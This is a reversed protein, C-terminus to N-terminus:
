TADRPSHYNPLRDRRRAEFVISTEIRTVGPRSTFQDLAVDKLHLTDRVAVHVVLDYRGTVLYASRVEPIETVDRLFDDVTQRKHKTLGIMLLAELGIGFVKPDAEAHLGKLAGTEWLRRIRQHASSPALGVEAAIAKVTTRADEQLIGLIAFDIRDLEIIHRM